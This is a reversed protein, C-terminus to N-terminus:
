LSRRPWWGPPPPRLSPGGRGPSEESPAFLVSLIDLGSIGDVLAHHTKSIIAFRGRDLGEVLWM